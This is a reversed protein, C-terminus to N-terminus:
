EPDGVRLPVPGVDVAVAEPRDDGLVPHPRDALDGNVLDPRRQAEPREFLAFRLERTSASEFVLFRRYLPARHLIVEALPGLWDYDAAALPEDALTALRGAQSQEVPLCEM